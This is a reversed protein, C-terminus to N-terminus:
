RNRTAPGFRPRLRLWYAGFLGSLAVIMLAPVLHWILLHLREDIPCGIRMVAFSFLAAAAGSALGATAGSMPAGRKVAWWLAICPAAALLCTQYACSLGTVIFETLPYGTRLPQTMILRTGALVLALVFAPEGARARRGPIASRLAIIAAGISAAGFLAVELMYRPARLKRIFDNHAHIGVWVLVAIELILWLGFRISVPWLRRVPKLNGALREVLAHHLEEHTTHSAETM